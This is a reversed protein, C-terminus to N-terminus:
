RKSRRVKVRQGAERPLHGSQKPMKRLRSRPRKSKKTMRGLKTEQSDPVWCCKTQKTFNSDRFYTNRITKESAKEKTAYRNNPIHM